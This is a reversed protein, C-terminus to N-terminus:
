LRKTPKRKPLKPARRSSGLKRFREGLKFREAPRRLVNEFPVRRASESPKATEPAPTPKVDVKEAKWYSVLWATALGGIAGLFICVEARIGVLWLAIMFAIWIRLGANIGDNSNPQYM